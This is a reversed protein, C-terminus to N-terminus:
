RARQDDDRDRDIHPNVPQAETQQISKPRRVSEAAAVNSVAALISEFHEPWIEKARAPVLVFANKHLPHDIERITLNPKGQEKLQRSVEDNPFVIQIVTADSKLNTPSHSLFIGATGVQTVGWGDVPVRHVLEAVLQQDPSLRGPQLQIKIRNSDRWVAGAAWNGGKAVVFLEGPQDLLFLDNLDVDEWVVRSEGPKLTVVEQSTQPTMGIFTAATSFDEAQARLVRFPTYRQLDVQQKKDGFNKLELRFRLPQGVQPRDTQLTLRSRLQTFAALGGWGDADQDSNAQRSGPETLNRNSSRDMLGDPRSGPPLPKPREQGTNAERQRPLRKPKVEQRIRDVDYRWSARFRFANDKKNQEVEYRVAGHPSQTENDPAGTKPYVVAQVPPNPYDPDPKSRQTRLKMVYEDAEEHINVVLLDAGGDPSAWARVVGGQDILQIKGNTVIIEATGNQDLEIQQNDGFLEVRMGSGEPLSFVIESADISNAFARGNTASVLTERETISDSNRSEFGPISQWLEWLEAPSRGTSKARLEILRISQDDAQSVVRLPIPTQALLIEKGTKLALYKYIPANKASDVAFLELALENAGRERAVEVISVTRWIPDRKRWQHNWLIEGSQDDAAVVDFMLTMCYFVGERTVGQDAPIRTGAENLWRKSVRRNLDYTHSALTTIGPQEERQLDSKKGTATVTVAGASGEVQDQPRGQALNGLYLTSDAANFVLQEGNEGRVQKLWHSGLLGFDSNEDDLVLANVPGFSKGIGLAVRDIRVVRFERQQNGNMGYTALHRPAFVPDNDYPAFRENEKLPRTALNLDVLMRDDGPPEILQDALILTQSSPTPPEFRIRGLEQAQLRKAVRDPVFSYPLVSSYKLSLQTRQQASEDGCALEIGDFVQQDLGTQSDRKTIEQKSNQPTETEASEPETVLEIPTLSFASSASLSLGGLLFGIALISIVGAQWGLRPTPAPAGVIRRIRSSLIGGSAAVVLGSQRSRIEEMRTLTRALLIPNGCAAIALDDCCNEREIRIQRSLWWVAPHYFYLTEVVSQVINVLYDHRRIHALEHALLTELEQVSLGSLMSAPLLIAPKFCGAVAPIALRSTTLLDVDMRVGMRQSLSRVLQQIELREVPEGSRKWVAIQRLGLLLRVALLIVGVMWCGVLWPLRTEVADLVSGLAQEAVVPAGLARTQTVDLSASNRSQNEHRDGALVDVDLPSNLKSGDLLDAQNAPIPEIEPSAVAIPEMAQSYVWAFTGLPAAAMLTMGVLATTYRSGPSAKRALAAFCGYAIAILAAQWIFHILTWGVAAILPHDFIAPAGVLVFPEGILSLQNSIM